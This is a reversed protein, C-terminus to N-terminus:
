CLTSVHCVYVCAFTGHSFCVTDPKSYANQGKLNKFSLSNEIDAYGDWGHEGLLGLDISDKNM